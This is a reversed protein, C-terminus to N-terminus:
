FHYSCFNQGLSFRMWYGQSPKLYLEMTLSLTTNEVVLPSFNATNTLVLTVPVLNTQLPLTAQDQYSLYIYFSSCLSNWWWRPGRLAGGRGGAPLTSWTPCCVGQWASTMDVSGTSMNQNSKDVKKITDDTMMMRSATIGPSGTWCVPGPGVAAVGFSRDLPLLADSSSGAPTACLPPETSGPCSITYFEKRRQVLSRYGTAADGCVCCIHESSIIDGSVNEVQNEPPIQGEMRRSKCKCETKLAGIHTCSSFSHM